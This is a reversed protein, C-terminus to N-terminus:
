WSSPNYRDQTNSFNFYNVNKYGLGEAAMAFTAVVIQKTETIDLAAKKMGGIYYGVTALNRHKIADYLYRLISKNQALIMIQQGKREVLLNKLIKLIFESRRNFDCLKNIMSAYLIQGRFNYLDKSYEEDSNEYKIARILINDGERKKQIFM